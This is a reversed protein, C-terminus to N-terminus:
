GETPCEEVARRSDYQRSDARAADGDTGATRASQEECPRARRGTGSKRRRQKLRRLARCMTSPSVTVGAEAALRECMEKLSAEPWQRHLRDIVEGYQMIKGPSGGQRVTPTVSGTRRYQRLLNQVFTLSVDFIRALQRQSGQGKEYARIVRSRLDTSYARM